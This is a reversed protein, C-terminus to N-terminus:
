RIPLRSVKPYCNVNGINQIARTYDPDGKLELLNLLPGLTDTPVNKGRRPHHHPVGPHEVYGDAM